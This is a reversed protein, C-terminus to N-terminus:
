VPFPGSVEFTFGDSGMGTMGRQSSFYLRTASPDFAPGTIESQDHGVLQVLPEVGGNVTLAVIQMDDGDEAVLIDGRPSITINDVGRLVPVAHDSADYIISVANLFLDLQWVRNDGKTTFYIRSSDYWAGEGGDFATSVPVQYRLPISEAGPDPIDHWRVEGETTGLIEAVQLRGMELISTSTAGPDAPTFRYFRGDPLDETMYVTGTAPDVAAAEHRMTGLAPRELPVGVGFPDCEWVRGGLFEECSLWTGWPTTGGACNRTTGSLISYATLLEGDKDFMLAGAGGLGDSVESNSVYVWGGDATAFTAGGDPSDHWAYGCGPKPERRTRAVIRSTYGAPLRVGNSDPQLLPGFSRTDPPRLIDSPPNAGGNSCGPIATTAIAALPSFLSYRLLERRQKSYSQSPKMLRCM